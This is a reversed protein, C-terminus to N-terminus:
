LPKVKFKLMNKKPVSYQLNQLYVKRQSLLHKYSFLLKLNEHNQVNACCIKRSTLMQLEM